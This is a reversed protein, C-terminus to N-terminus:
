MLPSRPHDRGPGRGHHYAAETRTDRRNAHGLRKRGGDLRANRRAPRIGASGAIGRFSFRRQERIYGPDFNLSM